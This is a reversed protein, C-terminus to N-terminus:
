LSGEKSRNELQELKRGAPPASDLLDKFFEFNMCTTDIDRYTGM